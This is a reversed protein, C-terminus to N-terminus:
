DRGRVSAESAHPSHRWLPRASGPMADLLTLTTLVNNRYYAAPDRVSDGVYASAAFHIVAAIDYEHLATDIAARDLLDAEVLPGWKVAWRHGLSLNDFAVPRYGAAALAKCTHSGIYGAGGTVLVSQKQM